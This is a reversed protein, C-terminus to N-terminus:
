NVWISRQPIKSSFANAFLLDEITLLNVRSVALAVYLVLDLDSQVHQNILCGVIGLCMEPAM